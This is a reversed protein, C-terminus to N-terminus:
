EKELVLYSNNQTTVANEFFEKVYAYGASTYQTSRLQLSFQVMVQGQSESCNFRMVGSNEPLGLNIPKPIEKVKYGEPVKIKAYYM